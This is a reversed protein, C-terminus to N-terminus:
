GFVGGSKVPAVTLRRLVIVPATGEGQFEPMIKTGFMELQDM